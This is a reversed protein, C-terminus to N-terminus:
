HQTAPSLPHSPSKGCYCGSFWIELVDPEKKLRAPESLYQRDYIVDQADTDENGSKRKKGKGSDKGGGSSTVDLGQLDAGAMKMYKTAPKELM